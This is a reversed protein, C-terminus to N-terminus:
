VPRNGKRERGGGARKREGETTSFGLLLQATNPAWAASEWNWRFELRVGTQLPTFARDPTRVRKEQKILRCDKRSSVSVFGKLSLGCILTLSSLLIPGNRWRWVNGELFLLFGEWRSGCFIFASANLSCNKVNSMHILTKPFDAM